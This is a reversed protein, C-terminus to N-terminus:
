LMCTCIDQSSASSCCAPKSLQGQLTGLKGEEDDDGDDDAGDHHEGGEQSPDGGGDGGGAGGNVPSRSRSKTGTRKRVVARLM